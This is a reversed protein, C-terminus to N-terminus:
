GGLKEVIVLNRWDSELRKIALKILADRLNRGQDIDLHAAMVTTSYGTVQSVLANLGYHMTIAIGEIFTMPNLYVARATVSKGTSRRRM